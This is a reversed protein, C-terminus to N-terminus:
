NNESLFDARTRLFTCSDTVFTCSRLNLIGTSIFIIRAGNNEGFMAKLFVFRYKRVIIINKDPCIRLLVLASNICEPGHKACGPDLNNAVNYVIQQTTLM